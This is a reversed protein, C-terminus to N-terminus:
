DLPVRHIQAEGNALDLVAYSGRRDQDRPQSVSGPNIVTVAGAREVMPMHTHGLVVFDYDLTGIRQLKPNGPTIYGSFPEWPTAHIMLLKAGAAEMEHSTPANALHDLLAGDYQARCKALYGPNGGGFLMNEHNGQICVADAQQLLLVTEPCFRFDSIADGACLVRDVSPLDDLVRRLAKADAHIDSVLAIKM